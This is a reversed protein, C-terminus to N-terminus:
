YVCCLMSQIGDFTPIASSVGEVLNTCPAEGSGKIATLKAGLMWEELLCFDQWHGLPEFAHSAAKTSEELRGTFGHTDCSDKWVLFTGICLWSSFHGPQFKFGFNDLQM